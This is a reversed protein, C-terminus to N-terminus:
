EGYVQTTIRSFLCFISKENVDIFDIKKINAEQAAKNIGANGIEVLGLISIAKSKGQKLSSLDQTTAGTATVPYTSNTYVLALANSKNTFLLLSSFIALTLFKKM